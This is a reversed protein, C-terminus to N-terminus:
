KEYKGRTKAEEYVEALQSTFPNINMKLKSKLVKDWSPAFDSINLTDEKKTSEIVDMLLMNILRPNGSTALIFRLLNDFNDNLQYEPDDPESGEIEDLFSMGIVKRPFVSFLGDFFDASDLSREENICSFNELKIVQVFRSELQDDIDLLDKTNPKGALVLPVKTNNMLWKITKVAKSTPTLGSSPLFDHAEDIGIVRTNLNKVLKKLRRRLAKPTGEDPCKDGLAELLDSYFAGAAIDPPSDICIMPIETKRRTFLEPHKRQVTELLFSKGCGPDGLIMVGYPKIGRYKMVNLIADMGAEFNPHLSARIAFEETEKNIIPM